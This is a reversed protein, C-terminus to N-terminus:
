DVYFMIGPTYNLRINNMINCSNSNYINTRPGQCNKSCSAMKDLRLSKGPRFFAQMKSRSPGM